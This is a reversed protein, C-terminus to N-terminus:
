RNPCRGKLGPIAPEFGTAGISLSGLLLPVPWGDPSCLPPSATHSPCRRAMSLGSVSCAADKGPGQYISSIPDMHATLPSRTRAVDLQQLAESAVEVDM